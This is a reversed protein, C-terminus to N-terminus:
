PSVEPCRGASRRGTCRSIGQLARAGLPRRARAAPQGGRAHHTAPTLLADVGGASGYSSKFNRGYFSIAVIRGRTPVEDLGVVTHEFRDGDGALGGTVLVSPPLNASLGRALETGNTLSGDSLVFVHVLDPGNLRGALEAGRQQSQGPDAIDTAACAVRPKDLAVATFVLGDELVESGIIEGATSSVLVHAGPFKRRLADFRTSDELQRRGGFVLVFQAARGELSGRRSVWGGENQWCGKEIKMSGLDACFIM